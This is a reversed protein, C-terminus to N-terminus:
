LGLALLAVLALRLDLPVGVAGAGIVVISEGLAVIIVLGHRECFHEAAIVFGETSTFWPTFWLLLAAGAWLVDQLGGGAAGGVLM